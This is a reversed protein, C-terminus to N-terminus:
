TETLDWYKTLSSENLQIVPVCVCVSWWGISPSNGVDPISGVGNRFKVELTAPNCAIGSCAM